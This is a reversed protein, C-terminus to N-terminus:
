ITNLLAYVAWWGRILGRGGMHVTRLMEAMKKLAVQFNHETLTNLVVRSEAEIVETTDFHCSVSFGCPALGPSYHPHNLATMNNQEFIGLNFFFHSVM